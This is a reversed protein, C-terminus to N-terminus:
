VGLPTRLAEYRERYVGLPTRLVEGVERYGVPIGVM